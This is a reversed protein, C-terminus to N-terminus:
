ITHTQVFINGCRWAFQVAAATQTSWQRFSQVLADVWTNRWQYHRYQGQDSRRLATLATQCSNKFVVYFTAMERREQRSKIRSTHEQRLKIMRIHEQHSKIRSILEQRSKIRSISLSWTVQDQQHTTTTAQDQQHTISAVQDEQHTRSTVQDQQHRRSTAQDQQHTRSTAQDQQHVTVESPEAVSRETVVDDTHSHKEEDSSTRRETVSSSSVNVLRARRNKSCCSCWSSWASSKMYYIRVLNMSFQWSNVHMFGSCPGPTM